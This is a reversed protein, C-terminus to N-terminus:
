SSRRENNKRRLYHAALSESQEILKNGADLSAKGDKVKKKKDEGDKMKEAELMLAEGVEIAKIGEVNIEKIYEKESLNFKYGTTKVQDQLWKPAEHMQSFILDHIKDPAIAYQLENRQFMLSSLVLRELSSASFDWSETTSLSAGIEFDVEPTSCLDFNHRQKAVNKVGTTMSWEIMDLSKLFSKYGAETELSDHVSNTLHLVFGPNKLQVKFKARTLIRIANMMFKSCMGQTPSNHVICSNSIFHSPGPVAIDYVEQRGAEEVSVVRTYVYGSDVPYAAVDKPLVCLHDTPELKGMPKWVHKLGKTLVYVKHDPTGTQEIGLHTKVKVVKKVGKSVCMAADAYSGDKIRVKFQKGVLADIRFTGTDTDILSDGVICNCAQRAMKSHIERADPHSEPLLYGWLHRRIGTPAEIYLNKKSSTKADELWQMGKKFRGFFKKTLNQMFELERKLEEALKKVSKQYILGFVVAKVAARMDKDVDAIPVGFFYSANQYHIDAEAKLRAKLEPTPNARYQNILKTAAAFLNAIALDFAVIGWGRVEHAKYDVKIILTEPRSIFLRKIHKALKSHTPINQLNPDSNHVCVGNAIFNKYKPVTIDYVKCVELDGVVRSVVFDGGLALLGMGCTLDGAKVYSGDRVRFPHDETCVISKERNTGAERYYVTVTKDTKTYGAWSVKQAVPKLDKDFCWVWDGKKIDKIAVSGRSDLVYVPTDGTLCCAGRHTVVRLFHYTARIRHDSQFDSSRGLLEIFSKVYADRLKKAKEIETFMAVEPVDAYAAQFAKDIKGTGKVGVSLPKLKLVDFFLTQKHEPKSLKLISEAQTGFMTTAPMGLKKILMGNAKKCADSVLLKQGLEQIVNEIPSEKTRLYFLYKIDVNAGTHEMETFAHLTDSIDGTVVSLWKKYGMQEAMLKQQDHIALPVVCDYVCYKQVDPDYLDTAAFNARDAKGFKATLYGEFGHQVALNDLSYYWEGIVSNLFKANEDLAFSGGLIDFVDKTYYRVGLQDRIQTLDFKANTYIHYKNDNEGEFYAKLGDKVYALEKPSFPTDKHYIPVIFGKDQDYAFQIVLLRNTVRNLNATETDIAPTEASALADLLKDFKSKTDILYSKAALLRESDVFFPPRFLPIMNRAMYGLMFSESFKGRVIKDISISSIFQYNHVGKATKLSRAVPVGLWHSHRRKGKTGTIIKDPIVAEQVDVGFGVVYDPKYQAIMQELRQNFTKKAASIFERSKGFTRCAAWSMACWSFWDAKPAFTKRSYELLAQLIDGSVGSLMKGSEMDESPMYDLVFLVKKGGKGEAFPLRVYNYDEESLSSIDYKFSFYKTSM